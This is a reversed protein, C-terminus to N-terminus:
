SMMLYREDIVNKHHYLHGLTIFGLANVTVAKENSLGASDIMDDTFSEFMCLTTQRVSKMEQCLSAWTRNNAHSNAAYENEDFGPLSQREKRAICLARYAFIKEADIIHQLIEKITWKGEAYAFTSQEESISEFYDDVIGQQDKISELLDEGPVLKIYRDFYDPYSAPLPKSM